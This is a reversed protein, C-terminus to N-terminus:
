VDVFRRYVDLTREVTTSWPFARARVTGKEALAQGLGPTDAMRLMADRIEDVSTPDVLLAADGAVEPISTTNSSIVPTGAAFAELVPLGFGEFLSPYVLAAAQGLLPLLDPQPVYRLWRCDGAEVARGIDSILQETGWGNRGVIVLPHARRIAAPLAAHAQLIRGVNKRPQLTGIFVFYGPELDYRELVDDVLTQAPRHFYSEDVGLPIATVRESPIRLGDAIDAASYDSITVVHAASRAMRAFAWNSAHRSLRMSVWEPRRLPIIDMITAVVPVSRLRPIHHDPAHFLSLRGAWEDSGPYNLGLPMRLAAKRYPPEVELHPQAWQGHLKGFVIPHLRDPGLLRSLGQLMHRSYVGIGDLQGSVAGHSLVTSGLGIAGGRGTM